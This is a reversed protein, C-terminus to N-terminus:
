DVFSGSSPSILRSSDESDVAPSHKLRTLMNPFFGIGVMIGM